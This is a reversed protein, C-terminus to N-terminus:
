FHFISLAGAGDCRVTAATAQRPNERRRRRADIAASAFVSRIASFIRSKIFQVTTADVEDLANTEFLRSM